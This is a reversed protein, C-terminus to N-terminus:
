LSLVMFVTRLILIIILLLFCLLTLTVTSILILYLSSKYAVIIYVTDWFFFILVVNKESVCHVTFVSLYRASDVTHSVLVCHVVIGAKESSMVVDVIVGENWFVILEKV